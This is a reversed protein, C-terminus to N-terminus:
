SILDFVYHFERQKTGRHFREIVFVSPGLYKSLVNVDFHTFVARINAELASQNNVFQIVESGMAYNGQGDVRQCVKFTYSYVGDSALLVPKLKSVEIKNGQKDWPCPPEPVCHVFEAPVAFDTRLINSNFYAASKDLQDRESWEASFKGQQAFEEQQLLARYIIEDAILINRYDFPTTLGAM